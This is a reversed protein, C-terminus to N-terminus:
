LLWRLGAVTGTQKCQARRAIRAAAAEPASHGDVGVTRDAPDSSTVNGSERIIYRAQFFFPVGALVAALYPEFSKAARHGLVLPYALFVGYICGAFALQV